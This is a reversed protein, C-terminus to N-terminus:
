ERLIVQDRLDFNINRHGRRIRIGTKDPFKRHQLRKTFSIDLRLKGILIQTDCLSKHDSFILIHQPQIEQCDRSYNM